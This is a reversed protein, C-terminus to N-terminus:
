RLPPPTKLENISASGSLDRTYDCGSLSCSLFFGHRSIRELLEGEGCKECKEGTHDGIKYSKDEQSRRSGSSTAQHIKKVADKWPLPAAGRNRRTRRRPAGTSISFIKLEKRAPREGERWTACTFRGSGNVYEHEVITSIIAAYASPRGIGKEELEKM